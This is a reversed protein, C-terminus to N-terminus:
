PKAVHRVDDFGDGTREGPQMGSIRLNLPKGKGARLTRGDERSLIARDAPAEAGADAPMLPRKTAFSPTCRM